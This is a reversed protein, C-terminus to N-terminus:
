DLKYHALRLISQKRGVKARKLRKHKSLFIWIHLLKFFKISTLIPWLWRSIKMKNIWPPTYLLKHSLNWLNPLLGGELFLKKDVSFQWNLLIRFLLSRGFSLCQLLLYCSSRLLIYFTFNLIDLDFSLPM